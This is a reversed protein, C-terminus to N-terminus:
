ILVALKKQIVINKSGDKSAFDKLM